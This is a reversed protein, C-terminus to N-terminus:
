VLSNLGNYYLKHRCSILMHLAHEPADVRSLFTFTHLHYHTMAVLVLSVSNIDVREGYRVNRM